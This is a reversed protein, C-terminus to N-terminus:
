KRRVIFAVIACTGAIISVCYAIMQLYQNIQGVTLGFILAGSSIAASVGTSSSPQQAMAQIVQEHISM